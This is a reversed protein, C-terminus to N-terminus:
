DQYIGESSGFSQAPNWALLRCCTECLKTWLLDNGKENRVWSSGQKVVVGLHVCSYRRAIRQLQSTKCKAFASIECGRKVDLDPSTLKKCKVIQPFVPSTEPRSARRSSSLTLMCSHPSKIEEPSCCMFTVAIVSCRWAARTGPFDSWCNRLMM